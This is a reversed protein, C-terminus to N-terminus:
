LAKNDAAKTAFVWMMFGNEKGPRRMVHFDILGASAALSALETPTYAHTLKSIFLHEVLEFPRKMWHRGDVDVLVFVGGPKLVRAVEDVVRQPQPLCHFTMVAFVADMSDPALPLNPASAQIFIPPQPGVDLRDPKLCEMTIDISYVQASPLSRSLTAAGFGQGAGIELVNAGEPLSVHALAFTYARTSRAMPLRAFFRKFLSPM